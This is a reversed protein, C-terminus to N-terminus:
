ITILNPLAASMNLRLFEYANREALISLCLAFDIVLERYRYRSKVLPLPSPANGM